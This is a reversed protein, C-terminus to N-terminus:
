LVDLFHLGQNYVEEPVRRAFRYTMRRAKASPQNYIAVTTFEQHEDDTAYGRFTMAWETERRQDGHGGRSESLNVARCGRIDLILFALGWLELVESDTM